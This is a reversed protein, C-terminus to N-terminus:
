WSFSSLSNVFVVVIAAILSFWLSSDFRNNLRLYSKALCHLYLGVVITCMCPKSFHISSFNEVQKLIFVLLFQSPSLSFQCFPPQLLLLHHLSASGPNYITNTLGCPSSKMKMSFFHPRPNATCVKGRSGCGRFDGYNFIRNGGAQFAQWCFGSFSKM